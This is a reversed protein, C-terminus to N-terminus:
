TEEERRVPSSTARGSAFVFARRGNDNRRDTNGSQIVRLCLGTYSGLKAPSSFREIDYAPDRTM